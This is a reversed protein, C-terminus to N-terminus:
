RDGIARNNNNGALGAHFGTSLTCPIVTLLIFDRTNEEYSIYIILIGIVHPNDILEALQVALLNCREM